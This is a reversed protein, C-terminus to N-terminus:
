ARKELYEINQIEKTDKIMGDVTFNRVGHRTNACSLPYM